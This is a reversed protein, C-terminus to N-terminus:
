TGTADRAAQVDRQIQEKLADLSPFKQEGRLHKLLFIELEENYFDDAGAFNLLHAELTRASGAADVTPRLGLNAVGAYVQGRLLGRVAYVGDPPLEVNGFSVNATPFGLQRALQRGKVVPGSLSYDRGLFTRARELRGERIAERILTSSVVEQGIKVAPVGCVAFGHKQGLEMLSHINGTRNKGFAWEYGVSIFGLPRCTAVLEGIFDAAHTQAVTGNFPSVLVHSAGLEKLVRAKQHLNCLARPTKEPRLVSLPHPDFTMVVASGGHQQAHDLAERIVEQHGLHVGDFVGIALAVPGPLAALDSIARLVKM